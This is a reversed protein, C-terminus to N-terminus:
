IGRDPTLSADTYLLYGPDQLPASYSLKEKRQEEIGEMADSLYLRFTKEASEPTKGAVKFLAKIADGRNM